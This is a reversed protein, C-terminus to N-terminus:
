FSAPFLPWSFLFAPKRKFWLAMITGEFAPHWVFRKVIYLVFWSLFNCERSLNYDIYKYRQSYETGLNLKLNEGFHGVLIQVHFHIMFTTYRGFANELNDGGTKFLTAHSVKKQGKKTRYCHRSSHKTPFFWSELQLYLKTWVCSCVPVMTPQAILEFRKIKGQQCLNPSETLVAARMSLLPPGHRM